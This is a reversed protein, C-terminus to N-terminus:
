ARAKEEQLTKLLLDRARTCWVREPTGLETREVMLAMLSIYERETEEITKARFAADTGLLGRAQSELRTLRERAEIYAMATLTINSAEATYQPTEDRTSM